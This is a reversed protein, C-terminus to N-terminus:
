IVTNLLLYQAHEASTATHQLQGAIRGRLLVTDAAAAAASLCYSNEQELPVVKKGEIFTLIGFLAM